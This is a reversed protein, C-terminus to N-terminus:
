TMFLSRRVATLAVGNSLDTTTAGSRSPFRPLGQRGLRKWAIAAHKEDFLLTDLSVKRREFLCLHVLGLMSQKDAFSEGASHLRQWRSQLIRDSQRLPDIMPLAM